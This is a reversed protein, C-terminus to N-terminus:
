VTANPPRAPWEFPKSMTDANVGYSDISIQKMHKIFTELVKVALRCDEASRICAPSFSSYGNINAQAVFLPATFDMDKPVRTLLDVRLAQYKAPMEALHKAALRDARRGAALDLESLEPRGVGQAVAELTTRASEVAEMVRSALGSDIEARTKGCAIRSALYVGLSVSALNVIKTEEESLNNSDPDIGAELKLCKTLFAQLEDAAVPSTEGLNDVYNAYLEFGSKM